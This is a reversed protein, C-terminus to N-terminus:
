RAKGKGDETWHRVRFSRLLGDYPRIGFPVGDTQGVHGGFCCPAFHQARRDYPIEGKQGNVDYTFRRFDKALVIRNWEGVKLAAKTDFEKTEYLHIGNYSFRVTGDRVLMRLGEDRRESSTSRLLVQDADATPKIEFSLTFAAGQPIVEQPICMYSGGGFRLAWGGGERVWAPDVRDSPKGRGPKPKAGPKPVYIDGQRVYEIEEMGGFGSPLKRYVSALYLPEDAFGGGGLRADYRREWASRVRAGCSPDFVYDFDPISEEPLALEIERRQTDSFVPITRTKGSYAKPHRIASRWVKGSKTIARLQYAPFRALSRIRKSVQAHRECLPEPIDGLDRVRDMTLRFTRDFAWSKVEADAVEGLPIDVAPVDKLDIKLRAGALENTPVKVFFTGHGEGFWLGVKTGGGEAPGNVSFAEWAYHGGRIKAHPAGPVTAVGTKRRDAGKGFLEPLVCTTHGRFVVADTEDFFDDKDAAAVEETGDLIELSALEEGAAFEARIEYVDKEDTARVDFVGSVPEALERISHNSYLYNKCTTASLRTSDFGKWIRRVGDAVTELEPRLSMLGAFEESAVRYSWAKLEGTPVAEEPFRVVVRGKEDRLVVRAKLEKVAVGDPVYLLELHYPEGIKLAQRVSVVLDPVSVDDGEMPKPVTRDLLARYYNLLRTWIRGHAVTPQFHTNENEENWEFCMLVDPNVRLIEDLYNRLTETGFEGKTPGGFNNIYGTRLYAGILKGRNEKRGMVELCVPVVYDSFIPTPESFTSYEGNWDRRFNVCWLHFGDLAAAADAVKGRFAEVKAPVISHNNPDYRGENDYGYAKYMDYFPMMGIFVCPVMDKDARLRENWRSPVTEGGGYTWCVVKGDLKASYKSAANDLIMGKEADYNAFTGAPCVIPMQMYPKKPPHRELVKLHDANTSHYAISGFGDLGCSQMIEVDRLFARQEENLGDHRDRRLSTDVFLPRDTWRHLVNQAPYYIQREALIWTRDLTRVRDGPHAAGRETRTFEVGAPPVVVGGANVVAALILGFTM